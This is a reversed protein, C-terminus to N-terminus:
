KSGNDSKKVVKLVLDQRDGDGTHESRVMYEDKGVKNTLMEGNKYDGDKSANKGEPLYQTRLLWDDYGGSQVSVKTGPKADYHGDANASNWLRIRQPNPGKASVVTMEWEGKGFKGRRADKADWVNEIDKGFEAKELLKGEKGYYDKGDQDDLFQTYGNLINSELVLRHFNQQLTDNKEYGQIADRSIRIVESGANSAFSVKNASLAFPRIEPGSGWALDNRVDRKTEGTNEGFKEIFHVLRPDNINNPMQEAVFQTFKPYKAMDEERMKFRQVPANSDGAAKKHQTTAGAHDGKAAKAGLDDAEKELTKDDNLAMGGAQGTPKVRGEAQQKTHALEHGLLEQGQSSSPNYQGPAFHIDTGQSYALAGAQVAKESNAHINVNSFDMGLSNEMKGRVNEPLKTAPGSSAAAELKQGNSDKKQLPNATLAFAPPAMTKKPDEKHQIPKPDEKRKLLTKADKSM